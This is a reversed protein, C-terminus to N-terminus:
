VLKPLNADTESKSVFATFTSQICVKEKKKDYLESHPYYANDYALIVVESVDTLSTRAKNIAVLIHQTFNPKWALKKETYEKLQKEKPFFFFFPLSKRNHIGSFTNFTSALNSRM